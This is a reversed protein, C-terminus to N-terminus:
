GHLLTRLMQKIKGLEAMVADFQADLVAVAVPGTAQWYRAAARLESLWFAHQDGDSYGDLRGLKRAHDFFGSGPEGKFPRRTRSGSGRVAFASLMPRGHEAEYTSVHYLATRLGGYQPVQNWGTRGDPDLEQALKEHTIVSITPDAPDAGAALTGIFDRLRTEAPTLSIM